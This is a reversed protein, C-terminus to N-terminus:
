LTFVILIKLSKFRLIYFLVLFLQVIHAVIRYEEPGLGLALRVRTWLGHALIANGLIEHAHEAM